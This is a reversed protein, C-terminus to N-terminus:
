GDLFSLVQSLKDDDEDAAPKDDKKEPDDEPEEDAAPEAEVGNLAGILSVVDDVDIGEDMTIKFNAVKRAPSKAMIDLEKPMTDAVVVDPGARGEHVLAVHNGVIDRMIGDFHLGNYKGSTMDPTYRYGCSWERKSENEIDDIEDQVWIVASNQLYPEEFRADTGTSGIVLEQAPAEANVPMHKALIPLNNFTPAAKALEEPDRLMYYVRKPDLGFKEFDPIEEGYYPNVDAKSINSMAIHLRRDADISRVSARDLAIIEPDISDDAM